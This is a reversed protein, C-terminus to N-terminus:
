RFAMKNRLPHLLVSSPHSLVLRFDPRLPAAQNRLLTLTSFAYRLEAAIAPQHKGEHEEIVGGSLVTGELHRVPTCNGDAVGSWPSPFDGFQEFDLFSFDSLDLRHKVM